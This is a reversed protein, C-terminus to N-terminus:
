VNSIHLPHSLSQNSPDATRCLCLQPQQYLLSMKATTYSTPPQSPTRSVPQKCVAWALEYAQMHLNVNNELLSSSALYITRWINGLSTCGNLLLVVLANQIM